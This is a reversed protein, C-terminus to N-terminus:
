RVSAADLERAAPQTLAAASSAQTKPKQERTDCAGLLLSLGLAAIISGPLSYRHMRREASISFKCQVQVSSASFKRDHTGIRMGM